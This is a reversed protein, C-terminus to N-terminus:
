PKQAWIPSLNPNGQSIKPALIVGDFKHPNKDHELNNADKKHAAEQIKGIPNDIAFSVAM